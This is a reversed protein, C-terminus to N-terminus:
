ILFRFITLVVAKNIWIFKSSFGIFEEGGGREVDGDCFSVLYSVGSGAQRSFEEIKKELLGNGEMLLFSTGEGLTSSPAM